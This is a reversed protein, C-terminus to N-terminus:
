YVATRFREQRRCFSPSKKSGIHITQQMAIHLLHPSCPICPVPHDTPFLWVPNIHIYNVLFYGLKIKFKVYSWLGVYCVGNKFWKWNVLRTMASISLGPFSLFQGNVTVGSKNVNNTYFVQRVYELWAGHLDDTPWTSVRDLFIPRVWYLLKTDSFNFKCPSAYM